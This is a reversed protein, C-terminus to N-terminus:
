ATIGPATYYLAYKIDGPCHYCDQLGSGRRVTGVERFGLRLTVFVKILCPVIDSSAAGFLEYSLYAERTSPLRPHRKFGALGHTTM